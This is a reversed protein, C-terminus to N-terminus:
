KKWKQIISCNTFKYTRLHQLFQLEQFRRCLMDLSVNFLILTSNSGIQNHISINSFIQHIRPTCFNLHQKLFSKPEMKLDDYFKSSVHCLFISKQTKSSSPIVIVPKTIIVGGITPDNPPTTAEQAIHRLGGLCPTPIYLIKPPM